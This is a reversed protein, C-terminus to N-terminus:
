HFSTHRKSDTPRTVVIESNEVKVQIDPNVEQILIGKPGKVTVVGHASVDVTVGSPINIVKKGIRSM